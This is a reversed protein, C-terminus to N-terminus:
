LTRSLIIDRRYLKKVKEPVRLRLMGMAIQVFIGNLLLVVSAEFPGFTVAALLDMAGSSLVCLGLAPYIAQVIGGQDVLGPLYLKALVPLTETSAGVFVTNCYMYGLKAGVLAHLILLIRAILVFM